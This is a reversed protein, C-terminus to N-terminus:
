YISIITALMVERKRDKESVYVGEGIMLMNWMFFIYHRHRSIWEHMSLLSVCIDWTYTYIDYIYHM